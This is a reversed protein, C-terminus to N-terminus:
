GAYEDVKLQQMPAHIWDFGPVSWHKSILSSPKEDSVIPAPMLRTCEDVVSLVAVRKTKDLEIWMVDAQVVQNFNEARDVSAPSVGKKIGYSQCHPCPKKLKENSQKGEGVYVEWFIIAKARATGRAMHVMGSVENRVEATQQACMDELKMVKKKRNTERTVKWKSVTWRGSPEASGSPPPLGLNAAIGSTYSIPTKHEKYTRPNNPNSKM